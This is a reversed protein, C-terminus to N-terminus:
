NHELHCELLFVHYFVKTYYSMPVPVLIGVHHSLQVRTETVPPPTIALKGKEVNFLFIKILPFLAGHIFCYYFLTTSPDLLDILSLTSAM